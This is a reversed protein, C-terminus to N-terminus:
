LLSIVCSCIFVTPFKISLSIKSSMFISVKVDKTESFQSVTGTISATGSITTTPPTTVDDARTPTITFVTVLIMCLMVSCIQKLKKMQVKREKLHVLQKM